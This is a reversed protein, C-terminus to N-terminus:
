FRGDLAFALGHSKSADLREFPEKSEERQHGVNGARPRACHQERM